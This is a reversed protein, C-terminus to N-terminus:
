STHDKSGDIGGIALFVVPHRSGQIGLIIPYGDNLRKLEDKTPIWASQMFGDADLIELTHCIGDTEHNWGPPAGLRRTCGKIPISRM